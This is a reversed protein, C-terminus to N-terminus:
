QRSTIALGSIIRGSGMRVRRGVALTASHGGDLNMADRAGLRVFTRAFQHLDVGGQGVILVRGDATIGLGVHRTRRYVDRRFGERRRNVTIQGNTVLRPGAQVLTHVNTLRGGRTYLRGRRIYVEAISAKQQGNVRRVVFATRPPKYRIGASVLRGDKVILGLPRRKWYFNANCVVDARVRSAHVWGGPRLAKFNVQNVHRVVVHAPASWAAPVYFLGAAAALLPWLWRRGM